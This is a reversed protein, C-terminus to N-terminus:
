MQVFDFFLFERSLNKLHLRVSDIVLVIYYKLAVIIDKDGKFYEKIDDAEYNNDILLNILSDAAESRDHLDVHSRLTDWVEAVFDLNM